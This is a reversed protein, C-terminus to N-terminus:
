WKVHLAVDGHFAPADLRVEQGAQTVTALKRAVIEGTQTDWWQATYRGARPLPLRLKVQGAAYVPPAKGDQDISKWNADPDQLYVLTEGTARDQLALPTLTAYRSSLANRLTIAGLSMWDGATNTLVITHKGAPLPVTRDRNFLAQYINDYEPFQRTSEYDQNHGPAAILPFETPTGGDVVIHLNSEQSVTLVRLVLSSPAPLDVALTFPAALERKSPGYLFGVVPGGTAHGDRGVVVPAGPKEGWGTQPQLALDRRTEPQGGGQLPSELALPQFDRHAWDVSRAFRAPATFARYLNQPAVYSDWWWIAAGGADGSLMASWLGNHLNTGIGRPDFKEDGGRWSIGFEGVM